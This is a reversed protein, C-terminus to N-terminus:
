RGLKAMIEPYEKTVYIQAIAAERCAIANILEPESRTVDIAQEYVALAEDTRQQQLLIQALQTYAIDCLPDVKIAKRILEEAEVPRQQAQLYLMAKNIYPLPSKPQLDSAKDFSALAEAFDGQDLFIEGRYNLVEFSKPFKRSAKTFIKTAEGIDGMKYLTVGLQIHAYVFKDDLSLSKKYDEVAGELQNTLFRVQGRHYYLDPDNSNIIEAHDLEDITKELEGREMFISARKILSNISTPDLSLAQEFDAMAADVEGKLFSFTGRLNYALHKFLSSLQEDVAKFALEYAKQYDRSKIYGFASLLLKDGSEVPIMELFQDIQTSTQRFSDMYATIFTESPLRPERTKMLDTAMEKGLVKMVRDMATLSAENKFEELICVATYDNLSERLNNLKEYALARRNIAKLYSKDLKLAQNCDEVVKEQEGINAYCAARNSYYVAGPKLDIAETYHEIAEVYEKKQFCKNGSAKFAEALKQVEQPSVTPVNDADHYDVTPSIPATVSVPTSAPTGPEAQSSVASKSAAPRMPEMIAPEIINKTVVTADVVSVPIERQALVPEPTKVPEKNVIPQLSIADPISEQSSSVSSSISKKSKRAKQSKKQKPTSPKRDNPSALVWMTTGVVVLAAAASVALWKWHKEVMSQSSVASVLLPANGM